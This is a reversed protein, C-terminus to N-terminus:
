HNVSFPNIFNKKCQIVGKWKCGERETKPYGIPSQPHTKKDILGVELKLELPVKKQFAYM